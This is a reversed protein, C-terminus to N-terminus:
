APARRCPSPRGPSRRARDPAPAPPSGSATPTRRGRAPHVRRPSRRLPMPWPADDSLLAANLVIGNLLNRLEHSVMGMSTDRRALAQDSHAKLRLLNRVRMCLEARDLPKTLFDEAGVRLGSMKADHDDLSTIMIVPINKTALNGKIRSAVEYGGMGPMLVDLLILDPPSEAVMALATEGDAAVTLRFREPSLMVELLARNKPEDDVILITATAATSTRLNM